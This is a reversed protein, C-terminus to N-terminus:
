WIPWLWLILLLPLSLLLVGDFCWWDGRIVKWALDRCIMEDNACSLGGGGKWMARRGQGAEVKCSM